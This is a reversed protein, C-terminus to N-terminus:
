KKEQVKRDKWGFGLAVTLDLAFHNPDKLITKLNKWYMFYNIKIYKSFLEKFFFFFQLDM